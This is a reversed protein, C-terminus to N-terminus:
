TPLALHYTAASDSDLVHSYATETGQQSLMQTSVTADVCKFLLVTHGPDAAFAAEVTLRVFYRDSM